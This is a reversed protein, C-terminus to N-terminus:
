CPLTEWSILLLVSRGRHVMFSSSLPLSDNGVKLYNICPQRYLIKYPGKQAKNVFFNDIESQNMRFQMCGDMFFMLGSFILLPLLLSRWRKWFSSMLPEVIKTNRWMTSFRLRNKLMLMKKSHCKLKGREMYYRSVIDEEVFIQDSRFHISTMREAKRLRAQIQDIQPKLDDYFREKKSKEMVQNLQVEIPSRYNVEKTKM